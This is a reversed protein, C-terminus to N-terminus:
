DASWAKTHFYGLDFLDNEIKKARLDPNVDSVLVPTSSLTKYLWKGIKHKESKKWYNHVWLGIPPLVRRGFLANNVKHTTVSSVQNKVQSTKKKAVKEPNLIKIDKRGTYLLEDEALFRTNSCSGSFIMLLVLLISYLIKM